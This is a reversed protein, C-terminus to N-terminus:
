FDIKGLAGFMVLHERLQQLFTRVQELHTSALETGELPSEIFRSVTVRIQVAHIAAWGIM